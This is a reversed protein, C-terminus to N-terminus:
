LDKKWCCTPRSRAPRSPFFPNTSSTRPSQRKVKRPISVCNAQRFPPVPFSLPTDVSLYFSLRSIQFRCAGFENNGMAFLGEETQVLAFDLGAAIGTVGSLDAIEEPSAQTDVDEGLGLQGLENSGCGYVKGSSGVILTFEAGVAASVATDDDPLEIQMPIARVEEDGLCLQGKNNYGASYVHGDVDIFLSHMKGATGENVNEAGAVVAAFDPASVTVGAKNEVTTVLQFPNSGEDLELSDVGFYGTYDTLSEIYGAVAATKNALIVLTYNSGASVHSVVFDDALTPVMVDNDGDPTGEGISESAGWFLFDSSEPPPAPEPPPRAKGTTAALTHTDSVSINGGMQDSQFRVEVPVSSLNANMGSGLQGRDNLGVGYTLGDATAFFATRAAPGAYVTTVNAAVDDLLVSANFSSNFTGDGLQGDANLGCSVVGDPM